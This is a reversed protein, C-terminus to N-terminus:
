HIMMVVGWSFRSVFLRRFMTSNFRDPAQWMQPQVDPDRDYRRNTPLSSSSSSQTSWRSRSRFSSPPDDTPPSITAAAAAASSSSSSSSSRGGRSIGMRVHMHWPFPPPWDDPDERGKGRLTHSIHTASSAIDTVPRTRCQPM